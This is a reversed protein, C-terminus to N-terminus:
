SLAAAATGDGSRAAFSAAPSWRDGRDGGRRGLRRQVALVLAGLPFAILLPDVTSRFRTNEGIEVLDGGLVVVAVTGAVLVWLIEPVPWATRAEWGARVLRVVAVAGRGLVFACLAAFTLSVTVPFPRPEGFLPLNWGEQSIDRDISLLLPSYATDLWTTRGSHLTTSHVFSLVLATMRDAAYEGPHRRILAVANRQAEQYAPLYCEHNYNATTIGAAEKDAEDTVPHGHPTCGATWEGYASLPGWPRELALDSVAGDAVDARVLDADMPATVGRQMNFGLWSSTTATGFVVQNKLMWGGVFVVPVLASALLVRRDPPRAIVLLALVAAIWLPHLLSRTLAGATLLGATALLWAARRTELYRQATALAAVILLGVPVEYSAMAMTSLLSPNLVTIAAVVAAAIPGVGWRVLIAHLLLGIGAQAAIDVAYLTGILPVPLWAIVAVLANYGPPQIHLYWLSGLPDDALADVDLIQWSNAVYERTMGGGAALLTAIAVVVATLVIARGAWLRRSSWAPGAEDAPRELDDAPRPGAGPGGVSM